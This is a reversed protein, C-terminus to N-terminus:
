PYPPYFSHGDDVLVGQDSFLISRGITQSSHAAAENVPQEQM